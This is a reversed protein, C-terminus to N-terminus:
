VMNSEEWAHTVVVSKALKRTNENNIKFLATGRLPSWQDPLITSLYPKAYVLAALCMRMVATFTIPIEFMFYTRLVDDIEEATCTNDNGDGIRFYLPTCAFKPSLADLGAVLTGVHQDGSEAYHIYTDKKVKGM